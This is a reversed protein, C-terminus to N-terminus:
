FEKGGEEQRAAHTHDVRTSNYQLKDYLIDAVPLNYKPNLALEGLRDCIRIVCDILEVPFSKYQPLHDDDKNKRIGELAESLESHMLALMEGENRKSRQGTKPDQWWITNLKHINICLAEFAGAPILVPEGNHPCKIPENM